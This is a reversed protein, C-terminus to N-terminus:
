PDFNACTRTCGMIQDRSGAELRDAEIQVVVLAEVGRKGTGVRDKQQAGICQALQHIALLHHIRRAADACRRDHGDTSESIGIRRPRHYAPIEKDFGIGLAGAHAPRMQPRVIEHVIHQLLAVACRGRNEIPDCSRNGPDGAFVDGSDRGGDNPIWPDM